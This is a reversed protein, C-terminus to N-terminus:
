KVRVRREIDHGFASSQNSAWSQGTAFLFCERRDECKRDILKRPFAVHFRRKGPATTAKVIRRALTIVGGPRPKWYFTVLSASFVSTVSTRGEYRYSAIVQKSNRDFSVRQAVYPALIPISFAASFEMPDSFVDPYLEVRTTYSAGLSAVRDKWLSYTDDFKVQWLSTGAADDRGLMTSASGAVFGFSEASAPARFQLETPLLIPQSVDTVLCIRDGPRTQYAGEGIYFYPAAKATECVEARAPLTFLGLLLTNSVALLLLTRQKM